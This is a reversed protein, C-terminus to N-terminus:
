RGPPMFVFPLYVSITEGQPVGGKMHRHLIDYFLWYEFLGELACRTHHLLFRRFKQEESLSLNLNGPAQSSRDVRITFLLKNM